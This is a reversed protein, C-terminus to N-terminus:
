SSPGISAGRARPTATSPNSASETPRRRPYRVWSSRIRTSWATSSLWSRIESITSRDTRSPCRTCRRRPPVCRPASSRAPSRLPRRLDPRLPEVPGSDDLVVPSVGGRPRPARASRVIAPGGCLSPASRAGGGVLRASSTMSRAAGLGRRRDCGRVSARGGPGAAPGRGCRSQLLDALDGQEGALELDLQGLPDLGPVLRRALDGSGLRLARFTGGLLAGPQSRLDPPSLLGLLREDLGVEPEHDRDGLAVAVPAEGEEVEDLLPVEAEHPGDLLEVVGLAELERGVGRPPDALGDGAGEGVLTAGDADGHVHDLGDVLHHPHLALEELLEAALRRTSSIAPRTSNGM